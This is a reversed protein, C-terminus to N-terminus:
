KGKMNYKPQYSKIEILELDIAEISSSCARFGFHTVDPWYDQTFHDLLRSQITVGNGAARGIYLPVLEGKTNLSGCYYVGWTKSAYIQIWPTSFLTHGSYPQTM